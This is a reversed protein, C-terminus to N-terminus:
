PLKGTCKIFYATAKHEIFAKINTANMKCIIAPMEADVTLATPAEVLYENPVTFKEFIKRM